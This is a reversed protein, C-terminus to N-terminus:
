GGLLYLTLFAFLGLVMMLAYNQVLGTQLRRVLFSGRGAGRAVANVVGDVLYKDLMHSLWAGTRAIVGVGDVAGDLVRLDIARLGRAAALTGRVITADYLADVRFGAYLLAHLGRWRLALVPRVEPRTVYLYRAALGGAVAALVSAIMVGLATGRGAHAAAANSALGAFVPTLFRGLADSGGMTAPVGAWGAALAGVALVILPLTMTWPADHPAGRLAGHAADGAGGASRAMSTPGRLAPGHTVEHDARQAQGHAPADAPHRVGHAAATSAAAASAVPSWPGGRYSGMFTLAMLRAIYFATVLTTLLAVAFLWPHAEFVRVQIEDKSFFGSLPPIGALALGAIAMTAFTLPMRTRLGGMRRMDQEGGLAHIVSGSGLFLLAKFFAHTALHFIAAGFAGVGAALCMYGIPSITSYALVRKIDHQVLGVAAALLATAAGVVAIAQMVLPAHMFLAATRAILYVGATVMTAAHILASVPTPGEMADPLWVFLPIQASKGVAGLTLLLCIASLVGLGAAEVPRAAVASAVERFDVTGFTYFVLFIALLFGLDGIRNVIFAKRGANAASTKRYWFGILLYSCLGVGEWGVFLVVFNGALVLLLMFACFLNLYCFFRAYAGSPEDRMYAVAYVHILLGIGTVVLLMVAALADARLLWTVKFMGIGNATALPIQPIWDGLLTEIMREGPPAQLLGAFVGASLVFAAGIALTAVLASLGRPFWRIGVLGNVTAAAAPILPILWLPTM